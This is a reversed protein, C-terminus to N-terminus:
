KLKPILNLAFEIPIIVSYGSNSIQINRIPYKDNYWYEELPIFASVIGILFLNNDNIFLSYVPGGSNGQNQLPM